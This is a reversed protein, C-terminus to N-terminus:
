GPGKVVAPLIASQARRAVGFGDHVRLLGGLLLLVRLALQSRALADVQEDLRPLKTSNPPTRGGGCSKANPM